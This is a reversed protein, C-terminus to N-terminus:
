HVKVVPTIEPIHLKLPQGAAHSRPGLRSDYLNWGVAEHVLGPNGPNVSRSGRGVSLWITLYESRLESRMSRVKAASDSGVRRAITALSLAPLCKETLSSAFGNGTDSGAMMFCRSTSDSAPRTVRVLVPRTTAQSNLAAGM